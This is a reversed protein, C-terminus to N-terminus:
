WAFCLYHMHPTNPLPRITPLVISPLSVRLPQACLGFQAAIEVSSSQSCAGFGRGTVRMKAKEHRPVHGEETIPDLGAFAEVLLQRSVPLLQQALGLAWEARGTCGPSIVTHCVASEAKANNGSM